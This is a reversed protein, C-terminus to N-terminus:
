NKKRKTKHKVKETRLECMCWNANPLFFDRAANKGHILSFGSRVCVRKIRRHKKRERPVFLSASCFLFSYNNHLSHKGTKKRFRLVSAQCLILFIPLIIIICNAYAETVMDHPFSILTGKSTTSSWARIMFRINFVSLFFRVTHYNFVKKYLERTNKSECIWLEGANWNQRSKEIALLSRGITNKDITRHRVCSVVKKENKREIHINRPAIRTRWCVSVCTRFVHKMEEIVWRWDGCISMCMELACRITQIVAALCQQFRNWCYIQRGENM